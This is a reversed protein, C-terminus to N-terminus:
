RPSREASYMNKTAMPAPIATQMCFRSNVEAAADNVALSRERRKRATRPCSLVCSAKTWGYTDAALLPIQLGIKRCLPCCRVNGWWPRYGM